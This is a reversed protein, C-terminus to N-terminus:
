DRFVFPVFYFTGHESKTIKAASRKIYRTMEAGEKKKIPAVMVGKLKLQDFLEQPPKGSIEATVLIADFPAAEKLGWEGSGIKVEVNRIGLSKLTKEAQRALNPIIEVSYVKKFLKALIAAQYGSGTGIELVESKKGPVQHKIGSLLLDTMFAVTYPQSITQGYGIPVANDAYALYRYTKPIFKERPIELMASFVLPSSLGYKEEIERIM